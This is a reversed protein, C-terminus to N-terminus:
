VNANSYFLNSEGTTNRWTTGKVVFPYCLLYLPKNYPVSQKGQAVRVLLIDALSTVIGMM